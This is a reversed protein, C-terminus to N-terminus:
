LEGAFARHQLSTFLNDIASIHSQMPFISDKLKSIKESFKDQDNLDPVPIKIQRLHSPGFNPQASGTILRDIQSRFSGMEVFSRLYEKTINKNKPRVRIMSTNLCLPLDSNRVEAIKGWTVGSSALVYDGEQLLFHKYKGYAEAPELHRNTNSTDLHGDVINRVNILKVGEDRFQWNRVGPGEQFFVVEDFSLADDENKDGFMDHFIAQGLQNLRDIAHQRKRRIDDAQDLIAAIRKQEELPPLPIEIKEAQGKTLKARTSGSIFPEVNYNELVRCLYSLDVDSKPRLVHAHNNVWTKGAIRYAIGRDPNDFFGGDEALLILPEDFLYGDITGQQGNAGYYPYEGSKRDSEKVPRRRNDLFDAVDGLQKVPFSGRISERTIM